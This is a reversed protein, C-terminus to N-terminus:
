YTNSVYSVQAIEEPRRLCSRRQLSLSTATKQLRRSERRGAFTQRSVAGQGTALTLWLDRM